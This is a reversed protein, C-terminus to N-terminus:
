DWWEITWKKLTFYNKLSKSNEVWDDYVWQEKGDFVDNTSLLVIYGGTNESDDLVKIFLGLNEGNIIKGVTNLKISLM